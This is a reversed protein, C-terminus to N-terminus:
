CGLFYGLLFTVLAIAPFAIARARKIIRRNGSRPPREPLCNKESICPRRSALWRRGGAMSSMLSFLSGGFHCNVYNRNYWRLKMAVRITRWDGAIEEVSIAAGLYPPWFNVIMRFIRPRDMPNFRLQPFFSKRM